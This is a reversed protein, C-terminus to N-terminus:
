QVNSENSGRHKEGCRATDHNLFLPPVTFHLIPNWLKRSVINSQIQEALIHTQTWVWAMRTWQCTGFSSLISIAICNLVFTSCRWQLYVFSGLTDGFDILILGFSWLHSWFSRQTQCIWPHLGDLLNPEFLPRRSVWAKWRFFTPGLFALRRYVSRAQLALREAASAEKQKAQSSSDPSFALVKMFPKYHFSLPNNHIDIQICRFYTSMYLTCYLLVYIYIYIVTYFISCLRNETSKLGRMLKGFGEMNEDGAQAEALETRLKQLAIRHRAKLSWPCSEVM